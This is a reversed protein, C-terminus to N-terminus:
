EIAMACLLEKGAAQTAVVEWNSADWKNLYCSQKARHNWKQPVNVSYFAQRGGQGKRPSFSLFFM